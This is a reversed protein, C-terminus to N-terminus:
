HGSTRYKIRASQEFDTNIALIDEEDDDSEPGDDSLYGAYTNVIDQWLEDHVSSDSVKASNLITVFFLTIFKKNEKKYTTGKLVKIWLKYHKLVTMYMAESISLTDSAVLMSMKDYISNLEANLKKNKISKSDDRLFSHAMGFHVPSQFTKIYDDRKMSFGGSKVNEGFARINIENILNKFLSEISYVENLQEDLYREKIRKKLRNTIIGEAVAQSLKDDVIKYYEEKTMEKNVVPEVDTEIQPESAPEIEARDKDIMEQFIVASSKGAKSFHDINDKSIIFKNLYLRELVSSDPQDVKKGGILKDWFVDKALEKVCSIHLVFDKCDKRKVKRNFNVIRCQYNPMQSMNPIYETTVVVINEGCQRYFSEPIYSNQIYPDIVWNIFTQVTPTKLNLRRTKLKKFKGEIEVFYEEIDEWEADGMELTSIIEEWNEDEFVEENYVRDVPLCTGVPISTNSPNGVGQSVRYDVNNSNMYFSSNLESIIDDNLFNHYQVNFKPVNGELEEIKLKNYFSIPNPVNQPLRDVRKTYNLDYGVSNTKYYCLMLTNYLAIVKERNKYSFDIGCLVYNSSCNRNLALIFDEDEMYALLSNIFSIRYHSLRSLIMKDKYLNFTLCLNMNDIVKFVGGIPSYIRKYPFSLNDYLNHNQAMTKCISKHLTVFLDAYLAKGIKGPPTLSFYWFNNDSKSVSYNELANVLSGYGWYTMLKIINSEISLQDNDNISNCLDQYANQIEYNESENYLMKHCKVLNESLIATMSEPHQSRVSMIEPSLNNVTRLINEGTVRTYDMLIRLLSGEPAPLNNIIPKTPLKSISNVSCNSFVRYIESAQFNDFFEKPNVFVDFGFETMIETLIFDNFDSNGKEIVLREFEAPDFMMKILNIIEGQMLPLTYIKQEKIKLENNQCLKFSNSGAEEIEVFHCTDTPTSIFVGGEAPIGRVMEIKRSIALDGHQDVGFVLEKRDKSFKNNFSFSLGSKNLVDNIYSADRKDIKGLVNSKMSVVLNNYLEMSYVNKKTCVNLTGSGFWGGRSKQNKPFYYYSSMKLFSANTKSSFKDLLRDSIYELYVKYHMSEESDKSYNALHKIFDVISGGGWNILNIRKVTLGLLFEVGSVKMM